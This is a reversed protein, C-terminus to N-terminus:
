TLLNGEPNNEWFVGKSSRGLPADCVRFLDGRAKLEKEVTAKGAGIGPKEASKPARIENVTQPGKTLQREIEATYDRSDELAYSEGPAWALKLTTGHHEPSWRAKEIHIDTHGNGRDGKIHLLTDGVGEWAGSATGNKNEHHVLISTLPREAKARVENVLEMFDRTEQLTGHGEMGLRTIPGAILVDIEQEKITEALAIKWGHDAFSFAGWPRDFVLLNDNPQTGTWAELKRQLKKRFLPRPGENEILLVRVARPVPIELWDTGTSLHVAADLMATTKGAGGAGYTTVDGGEPILVNEDDGLLAKAGAEDEAAFDQASVIHAEVTSQTEKNARFVGMATLVETLEQKAAEPNEAHECLKAEVDELATAVEAKIRVKQASDVPISSV